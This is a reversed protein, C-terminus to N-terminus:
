FFVGYVIGSVRGSGLDIVLADDGYRVWGCGPPPPYLDYARYDVIQYPPAWFPPPM